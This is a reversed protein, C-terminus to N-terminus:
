DQIVSLLRDPHKSLSSDLYRKWKQFNDRTTNEYKVENTTSM